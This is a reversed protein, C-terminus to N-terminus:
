SPCPLVTPEPATLLSMSSESSESLYRQEGSQWEDHAENLVCGTLRLLAKANPFIGVVDNRRKVERNLRELPNTSRIERWHGEPSVAFATVDPGAEDLMAPVAPFWQRLTDAVVRVQDRVQAPTPQVFITRVM